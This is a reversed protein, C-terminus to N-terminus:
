ENNLGFQVHLRLLWNRISPSCRDITTVIRELFFRYNPYKHIKLLTNFVHHLKYRFVFGCSFSPRDRLGMLGSFYIPMSPRPCAMRIHPGQQTKVLHGEYGLTSLRRNTFTFFSQPLVSFDKWRWSPISEAEETVELPIQMVLVSAVCPTDTEGWRWKRHREYTTKISQLEYSTIPTTEKNNISTTQNVYFKYNLITSWIRLLIIIIPVVTLDGCGNYM